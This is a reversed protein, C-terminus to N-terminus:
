YKKSIKGNKKIFKIIKKDDKKIENNLLNYNIKAYKAYLIENFQIISSSSNLNLIKLRDLYKKQYNNNIEVPICYNLISEYLRNTINYKSNEDYFDSVYSFRYQSYLDSLEEFLYTGKYNKSIFKSNYNQTIINLKGWLDIKVNDLKESLENLGRLYGAYIIKKNSLNTIEKQKKIIPNNHWIFIKKESFKFIENYGLSTLFVSKNKLLNRFLKLLIKYKFFPTPIDAIEKIFNIRLIWLFVAYEFGRVVLISNKFKKREKYVLKFSHLIRKVYGKFGSRFFFLDQSLNTDTNNRNASGLPECRFDNLKFWKLRKNTHASSLDSTLYIINM